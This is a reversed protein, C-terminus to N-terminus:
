ILVWQCPVRVPPLLEISARRFENTYRAKGVLAPRYQDERAIVYDFLEVLDDNRWEGSGHSPERCFDDQGSFVVHGDSARQIEIMQCQGLTLPNSREDGHQGLLAPGLDTARQQDRASTAVRVAVMSM